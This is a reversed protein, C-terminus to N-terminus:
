FWYFGLPLKFGLYLVLIFTILFPIWLKQTNESRAGRGLLMEFLGILGVGLISKLSYWFDIKYLDFLMAIGTGIIILYFFRLIMHLVKTRKGQKQFIIILIFLILALIWATIHTHTM